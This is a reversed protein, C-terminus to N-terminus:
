KIELKDLEEDHKEPLPQLPVATAAAHAALNVLLRDAAPLGLNGLLNFANVTFKGAHHRYTGMIVGDTGMEQGRFSLTCWLRIVVTEDPVAIGRFYEGNLLPGYYDPMLVKAPMDRFIPHDRAIIEQRYLWGAGGGTVGGKGWQGGPQPVKEYGFWRTDTTLLIAHAGRAIHQYVARWTAADPAAGVVIAERDFTQGAQFERLTAGRSALLEKVRPDLGLVTLTTKSLDAHKEKQTVSFELRGGAANTVGVRTAALTYRGEVLGAVKVDEEFVGFAMPAKEGGPVNVTLEKRWVEGTPGSITFRAPYSGPALQDENFLGVKVHVPQDAYTHRPNVLLAWGLRAWGAQLVPLHDAKMEQAANLIGEGWGGISSDNLSTMSYGTVGPNSRISNFWVQRERATLRESDVFMAAPDPYTDSMGYRKWVDQIWQIGGNIFGACVADNPAGLRDLRRKTSFPDWSSGVGGESCFGGQVGGVGGWPTPYAPYLHYDGMQVDWVLSGPNSMGPSGSDLLFLRTDDVKRLAPLMSAAAATVPAGSPSAWVGGGRENLLGWIVVSPRNRDRRIMEPLDMAFRRASAHSTGPHENYILFGLEDAQDLQSPFAAHEFPRYMNFGANKMMAFDPVMAKPTRETCWYTADDAPGGHACKLYIRRGNFMFVGNAVRLERFGVRPIEYTDRKGAWDATVNVTYLFPDELSWLRVPTVVTALTHVSRDPTARVGATVSAVEKGSKRETVVAKLTVDADTGSRNDLTVELPLNGTKWDPRAFVDEIRVQPRAELVVGQMLGGAATMAAYGDSFGFVISGPCFVRLALFNEGPLLTDTVDFEFPASAGVHSGIREGNLWVECSYECCGFRLFYRTDSAKAMASAFSRGYWYIGHETWAVGGPFSSSPRWAEAIHGPVQIPRSASLPFGEPTYWKEARGVGVEDPKVGPAWGPDKAIQWQGDLSQVRVAPDPTPAAVPKAKTDQRVEIAQVLATQNTGGIAGFRVVLRGDHVAIGDYEKQVPKHRGGADAYLDYDILRTAGNIWVNFRRDGARTFVPEVFHLKVNYVGRPLDFRYEITGKSARYTRLHAPLGPANSSAEDTINSGGVFGWSGVRYPQDAAWGDEAPGGCNVRVEGPWTSAPIAFTASNMAGTPYDDGAALTLVAEAGSTNVNRSVATIVASVEGKEMRVSTPLPRGNVGAYDLGNVASGRWAFNVTLPEVACAAPHRITFACAAEGASLNTAAAEVTVGGTIFSVPRSAVMTGDASRACFTYYLTKDPVVGGTLKISLPMQNTWGTGSLWNTHAWVAPNEGWLVGVTLPTSGASVLLGNCTVATTGAATVPRNRVGAKSWDRYRVVVVGSGGRSGAYSEVIFCVGGAGGGGGGLGDEGPIAPIWGFTEKYAPINGEGCGGGGKGGAGVVVGKSQHYEAGGGGGGGYYCSAGTIDSEFGDGGTGGTYPKGDLGNGGAGAGGGGARRAEMTGPRGFRVGGFRATTVGNLTVSSAGGDDAGDTRVVAVGGGNAIVSGFASAGGPQAPEKASVAAAGGAGVVVTCAGANTLALSGAVVQGGGGGSACAGGGGGGGGGVVLYEVEGGSTVTFRNTGVTRFVHAIWSIGDADIYNTVIGGSAKVQEQALAFLGLGLVLGSAFLFRRM